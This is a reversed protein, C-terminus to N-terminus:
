YIVIAYIFEFSFYMATTVTTTAAATNTITNTNNTNTNANTNTTTIIYISFWKHPKLYVPIVIFGTIWDLSSKLLEVSPPKSKIKM